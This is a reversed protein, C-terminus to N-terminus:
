LDKWHTQDGQDIVQDNCLRAGHKLDSLVECSQEDNGVEVVDEPTTHVALKRLLNADVLVANILIDECYLGGGWSICFTLTVFSYALFSPNAFNDVIHVTIPSQLINRLGIVWVSALPFRCIKVDIDLPIDLSRPCNPEVPFVPIKAVFQQKRYVFHQSYQVNGKPEILHREDEQNHHVKHGYVCLELFTVVYSTTCWGSM